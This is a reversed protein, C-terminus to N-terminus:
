GGRTKNSLIILLHSWEESMVGGEEGGEEGGEALPNEGTEAGRRAEEEEKWGELGGEM